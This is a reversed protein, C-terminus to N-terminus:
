SLAFSQTNLIPALSSSGRPADLAKPTPGEELPIICTQHSGTLPLLHFLRTGM